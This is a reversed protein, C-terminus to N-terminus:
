NLSKTTERFNDSAKMVIYAPSTVLDYNKLIRYVSSESIFYGETNIIHWALERPSKEPMGLALSIVKSKDSQPIKNWFRNPSSSMNM